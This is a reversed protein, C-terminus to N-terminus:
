WRPYLYMITMTSTSVLAVITLGNFFPCVGLHLSPVDGEEVSDSCCTDVWFAMNKVVFKRLARFGEYSLM